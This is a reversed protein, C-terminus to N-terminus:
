GQRMKAENRVFDSQWLADGHEELADAIACAIDVQDRGNTGSGNRLAAIAFEQAAFTVFEARTYERDPKM